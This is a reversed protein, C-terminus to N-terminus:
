QRDRREVRSLREDLACLGKVIENLGKQLIFFVVGVGFLIAALLLVILVLLVAIFTMFDM